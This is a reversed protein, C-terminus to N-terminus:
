CHSSFGHKNRLNGGQMLQPDAKCTIPGGSCFIIAGSMSCFKFLLLQIGEQIPNCIRFGWCADSYTILHHHNGHKPLTANNYVETDSPHPFSMYTQLPAWVESTFTFGYNVMILPPTIYHLVYHAANM